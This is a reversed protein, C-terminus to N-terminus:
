IMDMRFFGNVNAILCVSGTLSSAYWWKTCLVSFNFLCLSGGVFRTKYWSMGMSWLFLMRSSFRVYCFYQWFLWCIQLFAHKLTLTQQSDWTDIGWEHQTCFPKTLRVRGNCVAYLLVSLVWWDLLSLITFLPTSFIWMLDLLTQQPMNTHYSDHQFRSSIIYSDHQFDNHQFWSDHQFIMNFNQMKRFNLLHEFM